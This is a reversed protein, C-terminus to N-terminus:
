CADDAQKRFEERSVAKGDVWWKGSPLKGIDARTFRTVAKYRVTDGPGVVFRLSYDRRPALGTAPGPHAGWREPPRFLSFEQDGTAGGPPHASWDGLGETGAGAGKGDVGLLVIERIADDSCPHLLVRVDGDAGRGIAVLPREAPSCGAVLSALAVAAAAGCGMRAARDYRTVTARM